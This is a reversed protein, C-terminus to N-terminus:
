SSEGGKGSSLLRRVAEAKEADTLPLTSIMALASAFDGSTAADTAGSITEVAAETRRKRARKVAPEPKSESVVKLMKPGVSASVKETTAWFRGNEKTEHANSGAKPAPPRVNLDHRGSKQGSDKGTLIRAKKTPKVDNEADSDSDLDLSELLEEYLRTM